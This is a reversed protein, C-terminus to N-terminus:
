QYTSSILKCRYGFLMKEGGGVSVLRQLEHKPGASVAFGYKTPLSYLLLTLYVFQMDTLHYSIQLKSIPTLFLILVLINSIFLNIFIINSFSKSSTKYKFLLCHCVIRISEDDNNIITTLSILLILIQYRKPLKISQM